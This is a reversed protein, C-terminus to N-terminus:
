LIFITRVNDRKYIYLYILLLFLLLILVCVTINIGLFYFINDISDGEGIISKVPYNDNINNSSNGVNKQIMTNATNAAVFTSGGIFGGTAVVAAAKMGTPMSRIVKSRSMVHIGAAVSGGAGIGAGLNTLGKFVSDPLNINAGDLNVTTNLTNPTSTSKVVENVTTKDVNDNGIYQLYSPIEYVLSYRSIIYFTLIIVIVIILYESYNRLKISFHNMEINYFRKIIEM